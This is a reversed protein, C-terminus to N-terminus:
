RTWWLVICLATVADCVDDANCKPRFV